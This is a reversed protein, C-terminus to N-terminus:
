ENPTNFKLTASPSETGVFGDGLYKMSAATLRYRVLVKSVLLWALCLM